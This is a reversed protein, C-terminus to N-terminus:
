ENLFNHPPVFNGGHQEISMENIFIVDAFQLYSVM